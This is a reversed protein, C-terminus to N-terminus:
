HDHWGLNARRAALVDARAAAVQQALAAFDPAGSFAALLRELGRSTEAATLGPGTAVRLVQQVAGFLHHAARLPVVDACIGREAMAQLTEGINPSLIAPHDPGHILMLGQTIFEIDVIGGPSFKMDWFDGPPREAALKGRMSRIDALIQIANRPSCLAAQRATAIADSLNADGAVMRLRTLAMLEWTWAEQRYYREFALRRVAVPGARGSPRLQMDIPYLVGEETPASLATVLRHALRTFYQGAVPLMAPEADYLLILDLDGGETMERGGLKGLAAIAWKGPPPGERKALEALALDAMAQLSAEALDSWAAAAEPAPCHGSLIQFAIRFREEKAARRAHNMGTEFGAAMHAPPRLARGLRDLRSGSDETGLPTQFSADVMADLMSPQAGLARALAPALALVRCVGRLLDPNANLMAMVQVGAPLRAFFDEFRRFALDPDGTEALARLLKPVFFTLAERARASRTARIRGRHWDRIQGAARCADRFGMLTLTRLTEPDDAVGTFVLSGLPDSLDEGDPFLAGYHSQVRLRLADLGSDFVALEPHGCFRAFDARQAPDGPISHTQEDRLMQARHELGRLVGYIEALEAAAEPTIAQRRALAALATGTDRVRLSEDRGGLILQQVETFFEIERIGGRGLKVDFGPALAPVASRTTGSASGRGPRANIQRKISHIDAIAAHDLHRRWIFPALAALFRAAAASDGAVARAKIYAAREWNQGYSEFYTEAAETSVAVAHASPDPRLRTDVRAVYGDETQRMLLDIMAQALRVVEAGSLPCSAREYYFCIDIDSSYNLIQAGHKGLALVFFGDPPERGFLKQATAVLASRVAQDAFDSLARTIALTGAEGSLDALALLLHARAKARRLGTMTAAALDQGDARLGTAIEGAIAADTVAAQAARWLGGEGEAAAERLQASFRAALSRLYPSHGDIAALVQRLLPSGFDPGATGNSRGSQDVDDARPLPPGLRFM